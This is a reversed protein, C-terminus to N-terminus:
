HKAAEKAEKTLKRIRELAENESLDTENRQGFRTPMLLGFRDHIKSPTVIMCKGLDDRDFTLCVSEEGMADAIQKLLKASFTISTPNAHEPLVKLVEPFINGENPLRKYTTTENLNSRVSVTDDQVDIVNQLSSLGKRRKKTAAICAPVPVLVDDHDKDNDTNIGAVMTRGDTSIAMGHRINVNRIVYRVEDKSACLHPKFNPALKM